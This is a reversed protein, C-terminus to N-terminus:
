PPQLHAHNEVSPAPTGSLRCTSFVPHGPSMKAPGPESLSPDHPLYICLPEFGDLLRAFTQGLKSHVTRDGSLRPEMMQLM